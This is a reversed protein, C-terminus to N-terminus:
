SDFWGLYDGLFYGGVLVGAIFLVLLTIKIWSYPRKGAVEGTRGNILVQYFKKGFRYVLTWVPLQIYKFTIDRYDTNMTHIRQEDGGIHQRVDQRIQNEMVATAEDFGDKLPKSYTEAKFGSLLKPNFEVMDSLKWDSLRNTLDEPLSKSAPILIDDFFRSVTGSAPYWRTRREQREVTNGNSDKSTVTVYYHEGREGTYKTATQSDYTWFPYYIGKLPDEVRALTKLTNPAFWRKKIWTRFIDEGKDREIAFPLVYQPKMAKTSPGTVVIRTGCFDCSGSEVNPAFTSEGGCAACHVVRVEETAMTEFRQLASLFDIEHQVDPRVLDDINQVSGCFPCKMSQTGPSFELNGGCSNCAFSTQSM